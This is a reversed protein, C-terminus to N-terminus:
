LRRIIKNPKGLAVADAVAAQRESLGLLSHVSQEREPRKHVANQLASAPVFIGGALALCLAGIAVSLSVSTLIYGRAGQALIKSFYHGSEESEGMVVVPIDPYSGVLAQLEDEISPATM